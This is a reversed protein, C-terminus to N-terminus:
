SLFFLLLLFGVSANFSTPGLIQLRLLKSMGNRLHVWTICVKFSSYQKFGWEWM